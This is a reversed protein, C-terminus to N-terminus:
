TDKRVLLNKLAQIKHADNFRLNFTYKWRLLFEKLASHDQKRKM